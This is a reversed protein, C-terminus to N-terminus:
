GSMSKNRRAWAVRDLLALRSSTSGFAAEFGEVLKTNGGSRAFCEAVHSDHSKSLTEIAGMRGRFFVASVSHHEQEM